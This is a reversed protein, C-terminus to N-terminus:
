AITISLRVCFEGSGRKLLEDNPTLRNGTLIYYLARQLRLRNRLAIM